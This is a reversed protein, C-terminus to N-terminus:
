DCPTRSDVDEDCAIHSDVYEDSSETSFRNSVTNFNGSVFYDQYGSTWTAPAGVSSGTCEPVM